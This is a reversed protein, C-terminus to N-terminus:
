DIAPSASGRRRQRIARLGSVSLVLAAVISVLSGIAALGFLQPDFAFRVEFPGGAPLMVGTVLSDAMFVPTDEGNVTAKWGPFYSQSLILAAPEPLSDVDITIDTPSFSVVRSAYAAEPQDQLADLLEAVRAESEDTLTKPADVDNLFASSRRFPNSEEGDVYDLELVVGGQAQFQERLATAASDSHAAWDTLILADIRSLFGLEYDDLYPSGGHLVTIGSPDFGDHFVLLRAEFANFDSDIDKGVLLLSRGFVQARDRASAAEYIIGGEISYSNAVPEPPAIQYSEEFVLYRANLINLLRYQRGTAVAGPAYDVMLSYSPVMHANVPNAVDLGYIVAATATLRGSGKSFIYTSFARFSHGGQEDYLDSLIEATSGQKPTAQYSDTSVALAAVGRVHSAGAILVSLSVAGVVALPAAAFRRPLRAAAFSYARSAGIAALIAYAPYFMNMFRITTNNFAFGPLTGHFLGYLDAPARMGLSAWYGILAVLGFAVVERRPRWFAVIVLLLVLMNLPGAWAAELPTVADRALASATPINELGVEAEELSFGVRTSFQQFQTVPVLKVASVLVTSLLGVGAMLALRGFIGRRYGGEAVVIERIGLVGLVVAVGLGAFYIDYVTGAIVMMGLTLGTGAMLRPSSHRVALLTILWALATWPLAMVQGIVGNSIQWGTHANMMFLPAAVLAAWPRAGVARALTYMVLAAVTLHTMAMWRVGDLAPNSSLYAILSPPYFQVALPNAVLADGAGTWPDWLPLQGYVTITERAALLPTGYFPTAEGFAASLPATVLPAFAVVSGVLLLVVCVYDSLRDRIM